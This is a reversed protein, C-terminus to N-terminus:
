RACRWSRGPKDSTQASAPSVIACPLHGVPGVEPCKPPKGHQFHERGTPFPPGGQRVKVRGFGSGTKKWGSEDCPSSESIRKINARVSIALSRRGNNGSFTTRRGPASREKCM